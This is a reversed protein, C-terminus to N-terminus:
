GVSFSLPSSCPRTRVLQPVKRGVQGTSLLDWAQPRRFNGAPKALQRLIGGIAPDARFPPYIAPRGAISLNGEKKKERM